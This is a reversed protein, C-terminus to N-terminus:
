NNILQATAYHRIRPTKKAPITDFTQQLRHAEEIPGSHLMLWVLSPGVAAFDVCVGAKYFGWGVVTSRIWSHILELTAFGLLGLFFFGGLLFLLLAAKVHPAERSRLVAMIGDVTKKWITVESTLVTDVSQVLSPRSPM